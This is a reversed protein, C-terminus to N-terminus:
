AQLDSTLNKYLILSKSEHGKFEISIESLEVGNATLCDVELRGSLIGGAVFLTSDLWVNLRLKSCTTIHTPSPQFDINATSKPLSQHGEGNM